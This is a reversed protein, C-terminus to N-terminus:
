KAGAGLSVRGGEATATLGEKRAALVPLKGSLDLPAAKLDRPVLEAVTAPWRGERAKYAGAAVVVRALDDRLWTRQQFEAMPELDSSFLRELGALVRASYAERTETAKKALMLAVPLKRVEATWAAEQRKKRAAVRAGRAVADQTSVIRLSEDVSANIGRLVVDWDVSKADISFLMQGDGDVVAALQSIEGAAVMQVYDLASWRECVDVAQDLASVRPLADLARGPAACQEGTLNGRGAVVGIVRDAMADITCGMIVGSMSDGRARQGLRRMTQVDALFGDFDGAGARLTARAGLATAVERSTSLGMVPAMLMRDDKSVRPAWWKPRRTAEDARALADKAAALFGAVLPEDEAKWVKAACARLTESAAFANAESLGQGEGYRQMPVWAEPESPMGRGAMRMIGQGQSGLQKEGLLGAWVVFGNEEAKVGQGYRRNMAGVYDVGGDNRLPETLVTTEKSITFPAKKASGGIVIPPEDGLAAAPAVLMALVMAVVWRRVRPDQRKM